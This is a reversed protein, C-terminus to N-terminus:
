KLLGAQKLSYKFAMRQEISAEVGGLAVDLADVSVQFYPSTPKGHAALTKLPEILESPCLGLRSLTDVLRAPSGAGIGPVHRKTVQPTVPFQLYSMNTDEKPKTTPQHNPFVKLVALAALTSVDTADYSKMFPDNLDERIARIKTPVPLM